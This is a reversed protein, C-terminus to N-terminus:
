PPISTFNVVNQGRIHVRAPGGFGSPTDFTGNHTAGFCWLAVSDHESLSAATGSAVIPDLFCERVGAVCIGAGEIDDSTGLIGDTGAECDRAQECAGECYDGAGCDADATCPASTKACTAACGAMASSQLCTRFTWPEGACNYDLPGAACQGEGPDGGVPVCLPVCRGGPCADVCAGLGCDAPTACPRHEFAPDGVCHTPNLSCAGGSCDSDEDCLRGDNGGGACVTGAGSGTGDACGEGMSAGANCAPTCANPATPQGGDDPCPCDYLELGPTTCPLAPPLTLTGSTAPRYDIALGQGSINL